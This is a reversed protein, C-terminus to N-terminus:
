KYAELGEKGQVLCHDSALLVKAVRRAQLDELLASFMRWPPPASGADGGGTLLLASPRLRLLLSLLLERLKRAGRGLLALVGLAVALRRASWVRM